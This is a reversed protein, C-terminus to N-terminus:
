MVLFMLEAKDDAAVKSNSRSSTAQPPWAAGVGPGSCVAANVSVGAEAWDDVNVGEAGPTFVAGLM